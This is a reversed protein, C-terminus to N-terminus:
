YVYMSSWWMKEGCSNTRDSILTFGDLNVSRDTDRDNLWTETLCILSSERYEFAFKSLASLEDCKNRLSRVNGMM